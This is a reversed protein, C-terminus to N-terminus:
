NEPKQFFNYANDQPILQLILYNKCGGRGICTARDYAFPSKILLNIDLTNYDEDLQKM